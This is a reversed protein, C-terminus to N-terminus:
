ESEVQKVVELSLDLVEAIQEDSLGFYRLKDIREIKTKNKSRQQFKSAVVQNKDPENKPQKSGVNICGNGFINSSNKGLSINM